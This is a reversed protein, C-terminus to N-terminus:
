TIAIAVDRLARENDRQKKLVDALETLEKRNRGLVSTMENFFISLENLEDGRRKVPLRVDLNGAAVQQSAQTVGRVPGVVVQAIIFALLLGLLLVGGVLGGSTTLLRQIQANTAEMSMGVHATGVLEERGPRHETSQTSQALGFISLEGGESGHEARRITVPAAVDLIAAGHHAAV